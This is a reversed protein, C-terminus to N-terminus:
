PTCGLFKELRPLIMLSGGSGRRRYLDWLGPPLNTGLYVGPTDWRVKTGPTHSITVEGQPYTTGLYPHGTKQTIFKVNKYTGVYLYATYRIVIHRLMYNRSFNMCYNPSSGLKDM